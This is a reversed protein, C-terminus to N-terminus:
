GDGRAQGYVDALEVDIEEALALMPIEVPNEAGMGMVTGLARAVPERDPRGIGLGHGHDAIAVVPPRGDM